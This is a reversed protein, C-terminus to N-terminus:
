TEPSKQWIIKVEISLASTMTNELDSKISELDIKDKSVQAKKIKESLIDLQNTTHELKYKLDDLEQLVKCGSIQDSLERIRQKVESYRKQLTALKSKTISDIKVLAKEKDKDKFGLTGDEVSVRLNALIDLIKLSSDKELGTAPNRTYNQFTDVERTIIREYKRMPRDIQSFLMGIEDEIKKREKWLEDKESNTQSFKNYDDTQKLEEIHSEIKEKMMESNSLKKKLVKLDQSLEEFLKKKANLESIGKNVADASEKNFSSKSTIDLVANVNDYIAKLTKNINVTHQAFFEKLILTSRGSSKALKDLQEKLHEAFETVSDPNLETPIKIHESFIEHLKIFSKRNGQMLQFEKDPINPNRLEAEELEKLHFILQEKQDKLLEFAEKINPLVSEFDKKARDIMWTELKDAVITVKTEKPTTDATESGRVINLIKNFLGM